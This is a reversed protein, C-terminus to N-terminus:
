EGKRNIHLRLSFINSYLALSNNGIDTLAYDISFRDNINVGIGLNIQFSKTMKGNENTENQINGIGTRLFVIKNYDFEAGIHPDISFPNTRILVNRKKDTTIDLDLAVLASFKDYITFSRGAGIILKPLTIETTNQPVENGTLTLIEKTKDSFSYSWANFTGTADKIVAGLLWENYKYQAGLDFGFGWGSAFSGVKRRIIKANAGLNLGDVPMQRAYSLLLAFDVASFSKLKNYNINGDNDILETTDPIDDIAFRIISLAATSTADIKAALAAYDYKAIGAFYEAHMLAIQRQKEVKLLGAPNWYGSTVDDVLATITNSMALGRAGVGISLFENSYKATQAHVEVFIFLLLIVLNKKIM